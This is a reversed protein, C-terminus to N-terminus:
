LVIFFQFLRSYYKRTTTIYNSSRRWHIFRFWRGGRIRSQTTSLSCSLCFSSDSPPSHFFWSYTSTTEDACWWGLRSLLIFIRTFYRRRQFFSQSNRLSCEFFTNFNFCKRSFIKKNNIFFRRTDFTTEARKYPHTILPEQFPTTTQKSPSTKNGEKNVVLSSYPTEAESKETNSNKNTTTFRKAM